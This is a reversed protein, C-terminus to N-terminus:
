SLSIALHRRRCPTSLEPNKGLMICSALEIASTKRLGENNTTGSCDKLEQLFNCSSTSSLTKGSQDGSLWSMAYFSLQEDYILKALAKGKPTRDNVHLCVQTQLQEWAM